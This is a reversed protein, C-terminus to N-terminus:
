VVRLTLAACCMSPAGGKASNTGHHTGHKRFGCRVSTGARGAEEERAHKLTEQWWLHDRWLHIAFDANMGGISHYNMLYNSGFYAVQALNTGPVPDM